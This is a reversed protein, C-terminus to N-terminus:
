YVKQIAVGCHWTCCGIFHRGVFTVITLQDLPVLLCYIIASGRM